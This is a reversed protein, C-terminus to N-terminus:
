EERKNPFSLLKNHRLISPVRRQRSSIALYLPKKVPDLAYVVLFQNDGQLTSFVRITVGAAARHGALLGVGRLTRSLLCRTSQM